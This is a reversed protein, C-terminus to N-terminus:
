LVHWEYILPVMQTRKEDLCAIVRYLASRLHIKFLMSVAITLSEAYLGLHEYRLLDAFHASTKAGALLSCILVAYVM